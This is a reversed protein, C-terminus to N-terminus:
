GGVTVGSESLTLYCTTIPDSELVISIEQGQPIVIEINGTSEILNGAIEESCDLVNVTPCMSAAFNGEDLEGNIMNRAQLFNSMLPNADYWDSDAITHNFTLTSL